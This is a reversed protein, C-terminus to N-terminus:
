HIKSIHKKRILDAVKKIYTQEVDQAEKLVYELMEGDHPNLDTISNWLKFEFGYDVPHYSNKIRVTKKQKLNKYEIADSLITGNPQTYDSLKPQNYGLDTVLFRFHKLSENKFNERKLDYIEKNTM